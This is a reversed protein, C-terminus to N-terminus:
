AGLVACSPFKSSRRSMGLISTINQLKTQIFVSPEVSESLGAVTVDCEVNFGM